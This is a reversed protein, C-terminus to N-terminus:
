HTTILGSTPLPVDAPMEDALMNMLLEAVANALRRTQDEDFVFPTVEVELQGDEHLFAKAEMLAKMPM